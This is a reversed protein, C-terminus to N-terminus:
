LGFIFNIGTAKAQSLGGSPAQSVWSSGDSTLVNGTTGPSVSLVPSTGNGIVVANATLTSVGLGGNSVPLTGTVDSALNVSLTGGLTLSGTSTVTGTLTLGNVTGAGSVSTVTGVYQDASTISFNPYSGTVATTGGGTITVVQDPATNAITISGDGNTVSISTGATLTAKALSGDSSKGILLQGDTYSTFSTGGAATPLTGATLASASTSYLARNAAGFTTLNTGGLSTAVPATLSFVTGSLTLGTGASYVQAASIQVFNIATTGFTITGQTNCTYVEGAGTDGSQVYVTSGESLGGPGIEYSDADTARTLVWPTVGDGVTTVTYIGNQLASAQQYILIRDNVSAVVGDPTFAALTGANTLTAGVGSTGNNYTATLANPAEYKVPTHYHVGAAILNDVYQKTTAQLDSVPDQTLTVSTLGALTTATAGLSVSTSGITVSSNSLAANPIASFNTGTLTPTTSFTPPNGGVLVGSASALFATVNSASQYPISGAAGDNLNTAKTATAANGTINININGAADQNVSREAPYTVFVTKTGASFNVLSGSNSSSLVTDRSLSTGASIYTGIGVEWESGGTITYYTTNGNGIAAGFSQYGAPPTGTLTVSGTGTTTTTDQVRDALVLAM